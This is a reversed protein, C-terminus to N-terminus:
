LLGCNRIMNNFIFFSEAHRLAGGQKEHNWTIENLAGIIFWPESMSIGYWTLRELVQEQLKQVPEGYVFTMFIKKGLIVAEVDIM